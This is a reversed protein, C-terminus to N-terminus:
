TTIEVNIADMTQRLDNVMNDPSPLNLNQQASATYDVDAAYTIRITLLFFLPLSLYLM